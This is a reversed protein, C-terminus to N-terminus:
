KMRQNRLTILEWLPGAAALTLYILSQVVLQTSTTIDPGAVSLIWAASWLATMVTWRTGFGKPAPRSLMGLGASFLVGVILWAGIVAWIVPPLTPGSLYTALLYLPGITCLTTYGVWSLPFRASDIRGTVSADQQRTLNEILHMQIAKAARRIQEAIEGAPIDLPGHVKM